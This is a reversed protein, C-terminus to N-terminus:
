TAPAAKAREHKDQMAHLYALQARRTLRDANLVSVEVGCPLAYYGLFGRKAVKELEDDHFGMSSWQYGNATASLLMMKEEGRIMTKCKSLKVRFKKRRYERVSAIEEDNM